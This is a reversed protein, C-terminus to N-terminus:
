TARPPAGARRRPGASTSARSPSVREHGDVNLIPVFLLNARTSCTASAHRRVTLDRLLM